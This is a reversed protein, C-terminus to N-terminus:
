DIRVVRKALRWVGDVRRFENEYRGMSNIKPSRHTDTYYCWYAHARATDPGLLEVVESSVAHRTHTGPGQVGAARRAEAGEAVAEIGAYSAAATGAAPNAPFVWVVDDTLLALYDALNEAHDTTFAIQALLQGIEILDECRHDTHTM